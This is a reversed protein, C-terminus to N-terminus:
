KNNDIKLYSEITTTLGKELSHTPKWNLTKKIKQSSISYQTDHGLRDAIYKIESNTKNYNSYIRIIEQVLENNTKEEESTINYTERVKGTKLIELIANCNDEVFIWNRKNNGNGYIAIDKNELLSKITKPILKETNQNPGYNNCSRTIIYPFNYTNGYAKILLEASAKSASYPNSPNLKAQENLYEKDQTSGYVEDTSIQIFLNKELEKWYNRCADLLIQVGIVNTKLFATPDSISKDVHSEAAFNIVTDIKNEQFVKEVETKNCINAKIFKYREDIINLSNSAYTLCDLNIIKYETTNNLVYNVFHSGIFGAGGTILLTKM